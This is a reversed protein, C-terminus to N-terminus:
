KKKNYRQSLIWNGLWDVQERKHLPSIIVITVPTDYMMDRLKKRMHETSKDTLDPSDCTEGQYYSADNGM